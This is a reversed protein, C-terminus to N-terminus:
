LGIDYEFVDLALVEGVQEAVLCVEPEADDGPQEPFAERLPGRADHNGPVLRYPLRLGDLCGRLRAYERASGEDVLDGTIAVVDPRPALDNLRGIARLLCAQTDLAGYALRDERMVHLDSIQAVIM